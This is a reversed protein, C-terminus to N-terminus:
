ADISKYIQTFVQYRFNKFDEETLPQPFRMIKLPIKKSADGRMVPQDYGYESLHFGLRQYFGIRRLNIENKEDEVEIMVPKSTRSLYAAMMGSGIGGSRRTPDVAFHEVFVTSGMDWEAIFGLIEDVENKSTWITYNPDRLQARANERTRIEEKPFSCVMLQYIKEFDKEDLKLREIIVV